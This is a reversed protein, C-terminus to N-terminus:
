LLRVYVAAKAPATPLVGINHVTISLKNTDADYNQTSSYQASQLPTIFSVFALVTRDLKPGLQLDFTLCERVHLQPIDVFAYREGTDEVFDLKSVKFQSAPLNYRAAMRETNKVSM